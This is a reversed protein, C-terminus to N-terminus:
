LKRLVERVINPVAKQTALASRKMYHSGHQNVKHGRFWRNERKWFFILMKDPRNKGIITGGKERFYAYILTNVGVDWIRRGRRLVRIANALRGSDRPCFKKGFSVAVDATRELIRQALIEQFRSWDSRFESRRRAM